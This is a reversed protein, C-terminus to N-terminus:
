KNLTTNFIAQKCLIAIVTHYGNFIVIPTISHVFMSKLNTVKNKNIDYSYKIVTDNKIWRLIPKILKNRIM